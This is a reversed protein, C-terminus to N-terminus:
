VGPYHMTCSAVMCISGYKGNDLIERVTGPYWQGDKWRGLVRDDACELTEVEQRLSRLRSRSQQIEPSSEVTRRSSSPTSSAPQTRPTSM